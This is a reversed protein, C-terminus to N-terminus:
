KLTTVAVVTPKPSMVGSVSSAFNNVTAWTMKPVEIM